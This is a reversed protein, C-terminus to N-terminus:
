KFFALLLAVVLVLTEVTVLNAVKHVVTVVQLNVVKHVVMVVQLDDVKHVVTVVPLDDVLMEVTLLNVVKHVVTVVPLDDVQMEVTLDQVLHVKPVAAIVEAMRDLAAALVVVTVLHLELLAAVIAAAMDVLGMDEQNFVRLNDEMDKVQLLVEKTLDAVLTPRHQRNRQPLTFMLQIKM